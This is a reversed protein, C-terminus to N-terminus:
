EFSRKLSEHAHAHLPGNLFYIATFIGIKSGGEGKDYKTVSQRSRGGGKDGGLYHRVNQGSILQFIELCTDLQVYVFALTM